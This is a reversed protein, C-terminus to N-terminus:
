SSSVRAATPLTECAKQDLPRDLRLLVVARFHRTQHAGGGALSWRIEPRSGIVAYDYRGANLASRWANCTHIARFSGHPGRVGIWQVYNTLDRGYLPYQLNTFPGYIAIRANHVHQLYASVPPMPLPPPDTYRHHLYFDQLAYGGGVVVLAVGVLHRAGLQHLRMWRIAGVAGAVAVIAALVGVIADTGKIPLAFRLGIGTPWITGDLQGVALVAILVAMLWPRARPGLVTTLPLLVLGFAFAPAAYRLNYVFYVPAGLIALFQPTFLFAGLTSLAVLALMPQLRTRFRVGSLVLGVVSLILIAWWAPGLSARLGPLLYQHWANRDFIYHFVTSAPTGVPPSPLRFRGIGLHLSPLPNGVAVLNRVYWFSGTAVLLAVWLLGRGLRRRARELVIVGITMAGVPAIFNFKTGLALGLALAAAAFGAPVIRQHARQSNLLLAVASLLLALGVIDDYGGGPQTGVFGPTAVLVSSAALTLPAVGFPRGICWAALFMLALWGMNALPSVVDSGLFIIALAHLLESSGPFFVTVPEPDVYHLATISGEQVFRAAFPGHYWLTDVTTMGHHLADVTRTTWDAVVIGAAIVAAGTMFRNESRPSKEAPVPSVAPERTRSHRSTWWGISGVVGMTVTLPALRLGGVTGLLESIVMVAALTTIIDFL